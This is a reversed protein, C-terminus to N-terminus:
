RDGGCGSGITQSDPQYYHDTTAASPAHLWDKSIIYKHVAISNVGQPL